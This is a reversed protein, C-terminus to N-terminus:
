GRSYRLLTKLFDSRKFVKFYEADRLTFGNGYEMGRLTFGFGEVYEIGFVVMLVEEASIFMQNVVVTSTVLLILLM